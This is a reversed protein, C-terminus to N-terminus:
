FKEIHHKSRFLLFTEDVYRRYIVPKFESPCNELWIKEHYCLFFNALTPGLPSGMAVGNQQKYFEQDFLILSESMTRTLLERFSDKPLNDVNARDQFLNEVYLDITEQLPINTFLSEIDFSAMVLKSDFSQLEEAFTFSDKNTYENTTLPELMPVLFKELKYTPTGLASLIRRFSPIGDTVIKYVKALGYM